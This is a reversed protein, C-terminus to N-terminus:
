RRKSIYATSCTCGPFGDGRPNKKHHECIHEKIEMENEEPIYNWM